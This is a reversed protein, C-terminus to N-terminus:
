LSAHILNHDQMFVVDNESTGGSATINTYASIQTNGCMQFTYQHSSIVYIFYYLMTESASVKDVVETYGTNRKDITTHYKM